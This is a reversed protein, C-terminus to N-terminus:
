RRRSSEEKKKEIALRNAEELARAQRLQADVADQETRAAQRMAWAAQEAVQESAWSIKDVFEIKDQEIQLLDAKHKDDKEDQYPVTQLLLDYARELSDRYVVLKAHILPYRIVFSRSNINENITKLDDFVMQKFSLLPYQKHSLLIRRVWKVIRNEQEPLLATDCWKADHTPLKIYFNLIQHARLFDDYYIKINSTAQELLKEHADIEFLIEKMEDYYRYLYLASKRAAFLNLKNKLVYDHLCQIVKEDIADLKVSLRTKLYHEFYAELSDNWSAYPLLDKCNDINRLINHLNKVQQYLFFDRYYLTANLSARELLHELVDLETELDKMSYFYHGRQGILQRAIALNKKQIAIHKDVVQSSTENIDIINLHFKTKLYCAFYAEKTDTWSDPPLLDQCTDIHNCIDQVKNKITENSDITTYLIAAGVVAITGAAITTGTKVKCMDQWWQDDFGQLTAYGFILLCSMIKKM